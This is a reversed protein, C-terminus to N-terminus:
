SCFYRKARRFISRFDRLREMQTAYSRPSVRRLLRTVCEASNKSFTSRTFYPSPSFNGSFFTEFFYRKPCKLKKNGHQFFTKIRVTSILILTFHQDIQSVQSLPKVKDLTSKSTSKSNPAPNRLVTLCQVSMITGVDECCHKVLM